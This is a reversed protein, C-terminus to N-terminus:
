FIGAVQKAICSTSTFNARVKFIFSSMHTPQEVSSGGWSSKKSGVVNYFALFYIPDSLPYHEFISFVAKKVYGQNWVGKFQKWVIHVLSRTKKQDTQEM